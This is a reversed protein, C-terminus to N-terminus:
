AAMVQELWAALAPNRQRLEQRNNEPKYFDQSDGVRRTLWAEVAEAFYERPNDMARPTLFRNDGRRWAALDEQFLRDVTARHDPFLAEAAYDVAHGAEHVLVRYHGVEEAPERVFGEHVMILRNPWAHVGRHQRVEMATFKGYSDRSVESVSRGRHHVYPVLLIEAEAHAQDGEVQALDGNLEALLGKWNEYDDDPIGKTAALMRLDVPDRAVEVSFGIGAADLRPLLAERIRDPLWRRALASQFEDGAAERELAATEEEIAGRALSRAEAFSSRCREPTMEQLIDTDALSQGDRLVVVALNEADLRRLWPVPLAALDRTAAARVDPPLDRGRVMGQALGVAEPSPMGLLPSGPLSTPEEFHALSALPASSPVETPAPSAAPATASQAKGAPPQSAQAPPPGPALGTPQFTDQPETAGSRPEPLAAGPLSSRLSPSEPRILM